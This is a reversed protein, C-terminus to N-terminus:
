SDNKKTNKEWDLWGGKYNSSRHYGLELALKLAEVSRRGGRCSFIIETDKSPKDFQYRSKFNEPSMESLAKKLEGLPIHISGPLKGTQTIESYDRVDVLVVNKDKKKELLEDYSHHRNPDQLQSDIDVEMQSSKNFQLINGTHIKNLHVSKVLNRVQNGVTLRNVTTVLLPLFRSVIM